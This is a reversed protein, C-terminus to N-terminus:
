LGSPRMQRATVWDKSAPSGAAAADSSWSSAARRRSQRTSKAREDLGELGDDGAAAVAGQGVGRIQVVHHGGFYEEQEFRQFLARLAVKTTKRPLRCHRAPGTGRLVQGESHM